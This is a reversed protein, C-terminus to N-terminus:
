RQVPAVVTDGAREFTLRELTIERVDAPGDRTPLVDGSRLRLLAGDESRVMAVAEGGLSVVGVIEYAGFLRDDNPDEVPVGPAEPPPPRRAASFLPRDLFPAFDTPDPESLDLAVLAQNAPSPAAAADRGPTQALWPAAALWGFGAMAALAFLCAILRM